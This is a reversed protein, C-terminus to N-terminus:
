YSSPRKGPGALVLRSYASIVEPTLIGGNQDGSSRAGTGLAPAVTALGALYGSFGM